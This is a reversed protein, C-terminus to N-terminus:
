FLKHWNGVAVARGLNVKSAPPNSELNELLSILEMKLSDITSDNDIIADLPYGVWSRESAHINMSELQSISNSDGDNANIALNFWQPEPGRRIRVISGGARRIADFENPFRVDTIVIDESSNRLRSELSALWIDDHFGTRCVETGWYQLIWRPTLHPIDLREAWWSDITERWARAEPTRGELLIRDWGFVASVTDKLSSAFSDRKFGYNECLFDAATDKGSGIFGCIGLIKRM